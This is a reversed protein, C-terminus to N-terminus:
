SAATLSGSATLDIFDLAACNEVDIAVTDSLITNVRGTGRLTVFGKGDPCEFGDFTGPGIDVLLPENASPAPDRDNWIWGTAPDSLSAMTEFCNKMESGSPGCDERLFVVQADDDPSPDPNAFAPPCLAFAALFAFLRLM